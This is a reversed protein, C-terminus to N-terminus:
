GVTKLFDYNCKSSYCRRVAWALFPSGESARRLYRDGWLGKGQLELIWWWPPFLRHANVKNMGRMVVYVEILDGRPRKCELYIFGLRGLKERYRLGALGPLCGPSNRRYGKWRNPWISDDFRRFKPQSRCLKPHALGKSPHLHSALWSGRSTKNM